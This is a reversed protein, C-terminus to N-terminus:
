RVSTRGIIPMRHTSRDLYAKMLQPANERDIECINNFGAPFINADVIAAKYCADRIDYSSYVPLALGSSQQEFWEEVRGLNAVIRGHMEDKLSM